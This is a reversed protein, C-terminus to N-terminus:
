KKRWIAVVQKLVFNASTVTLATWMFAFHTRELRALLDDPYGRFRLLAIAEWFVYLVALISLTKTSDAVLHLFWPRLEQEWLESWFSTDDDMFSNAESGAVTALCFPQM